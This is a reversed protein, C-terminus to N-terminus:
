SGNKAKDNLLEARALANWACHWAHPLGSEPDL